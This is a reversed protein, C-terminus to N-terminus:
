RRRSIQHAPTIYGRKRDDTNLREQNHKGLALAQAAETRVEKMRIETAGEYKQLKDTLITITSSAKRGEQHAEEAADAVKWAQHRAEEAVEMVKSIGSATADEVQQIRSQGEEAAAHAKDAKESAAQAVETARFAEMAIAQLKPDRPKYPKNSSAAKRARACANEKARQNKGALKVKRSRDKQLARAERNVSPKKLIKM